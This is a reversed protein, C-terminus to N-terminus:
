PLPRGIQSHPHELSAGGQPGDNSFITIHAIRPDHSLADYRSKYARLVNAVHTRPMLAM